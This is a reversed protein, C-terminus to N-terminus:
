GEEEDECTESLGRIARGLWTDDPTAYIILGVVALVLLLLGSTADPM